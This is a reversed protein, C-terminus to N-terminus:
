HFLETSQKFKGLIRKFSPGLRLGVGVAIYEVFSQQRNLVVRLDAVTMRFERRCVTDKGGSLMEDDIPDAIGGYVDGSNQM